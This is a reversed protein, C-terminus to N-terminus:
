MLLGIGNMLRIANCFFLYKICIHSKGVNKIFFTFFYFFVNSFAGHIFFTLKRKCRHRKSSDVTAATVAARCATSTGATEQATTTVTTTATTTTGNYYHDVATREREWATRRTGAPGTHRSAADDASPHRGADRAPAPERDVRLSLQLRPVGPHDDGRGRVPDAITSRVDGV